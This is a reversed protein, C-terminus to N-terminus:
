AALPFIVRPPVPAAGQSKPSSINGSWRNYLDLPCPRDMTPRVGGGHPLGWPAGGDRRFHHVGITAFFFPLFHSNEFSGTMESGDFCGIDGRPTIVKGALPSKPQRSPDSGAKGTSVRSEQQERYRRVMKAEVGALKSIDESSMVKGRETRCRSSANAKCTM